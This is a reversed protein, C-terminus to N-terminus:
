EALPLELLAAESQGFRTPLPKCVAVLQKHKASASDTDPWRRGSGPGSGKVHFKYSCVKFESRLLTKM